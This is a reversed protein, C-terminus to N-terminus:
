NMLVKAKGDVLCDKKFELICFFGRSHENLICIGPGQESANEKSLDKNLTMYEKPREKLSVM